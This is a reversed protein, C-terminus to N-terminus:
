TAPTAGLTWLAGHPPVHTRPAEPSDPFIVTGGPPHELTWAQASFNARLALPTGDGLLWDVTLRSDDIVAFRGRHHPGALHPVVARQRIALLNRYLALWEEHDPSGIEDWRLKCAAFTAPDNPDPLDGAHGFEAFERRRGERVKVALDPGFDCFFLFPTSAAFEEGMFLMPIGPSLLLSVVGLRLIRAPALHAIREGLARNGVQDHSQTYNIFATSPLENSKEGRPQGRRFRSPEGQYGFGEALARGLYWLPQEAYDTYYGSQEGTALVHLAHHFDDNWQANAHAPHSHAPASGGHRSLFSAQNSENELILHVHRDRGPGARIAAAVDSVVHRGSDDAIAQIADLRLGDFHFEELWYLANHIFFDRVVASRDGDFNIAAGWPTAHAPNFFASAFEHLYAGEPGFHNYVVDLIAMLNRAHAEAVLRKLDAPTGYAADPAFPLVGDYGWGRRGPFDAVPMIEIATVGLEVLYDLREVAAAFTGEPTFTGVHLEYIVAEEWPRGRWDADPWDFAEPDVVASAAHIDEPNHRSAPDPVSIRDDIRFLYRAGAAVDPVRITHWGDADRQMPLRARQYQQGLDLHVTQADPAWLRFRVGGDGGCEAGFPMRHRRKM